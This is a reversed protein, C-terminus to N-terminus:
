RDLREMGLASLRESWLSLEVLAPDAVRDAGRRGNQEAAIGRPLHGGYLAVLRQRPAARAEYANQWTSLHDLKPVWVELRDLCHTTEIADMRRLEPACRHVFDSAERWAMVNHNSPEDCIHFVTKELWGKERLHAVLAPLFAPLFEKGAIRVTKGVSEDQVDFDSLRVEPSSWGGEGFRAVFGTELLDMRGTNWFVDAWRDFNSFDFRLQGDAGRSSRILSLSVRFVNQRHDAMNEAYTALMRYFADSDGPDIGHHRQFHHTSFWETVMMHREDPLTLPFVTVILPVEARADGAQVAISGRYEGAPLERPIRITLYVAKLSGQAVACQRQDSLVDPFHAPGPRTLDSKVLKPTNKEIFISDVFNWQLADGSLTASEEAHQLPSVAVTLANLKENARVVCQASLIENRLGFVRLERDRGESWGYGDEFVRVAENAAFIELPPAAAHGGPSSLLLTAIAVVPRLLNCRPDASM